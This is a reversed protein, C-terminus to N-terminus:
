HCIRGSLGSIWRTPIGSRGHLTGIVTGVIAAMTDNYLRIATGRAQDATEMVDQSFSTRPGASAASIM